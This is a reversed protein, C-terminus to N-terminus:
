CHRLLTLSRIVVIASSTSWHLLRLIRIVLALGLVGLFWGLVALIVRRRLSLWRLLVISVLLIAVARVRLRKFLLELEVLGLVVVKPCAREEDGDEQAVDSHARNRNASVRTRVATTDVSIRVLKREIGVRNNQKGKHQAHRCEQTIRIDPCSPSKGLLEDPNRSDQTLARTNILVCPTTRMVKEFTIRM